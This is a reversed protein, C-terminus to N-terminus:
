RSGDGARRAGQDTIEWVGRPSGSEMDGKKVLGLRVFQARNRWRVGGTNVRERDLDTLKGDLHEELADLVERSPARGGREALIQLIPVEYEPEPLLAGRPARRRGRKSRSATGTRPRSRGKAKTKTRPAPQETEVPLLADAEAGNRTPLGVLRRLVTNPTDVFPEAQNKLFEYLEADIRITPTVPEEKRVHRLLL